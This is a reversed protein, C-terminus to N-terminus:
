SHVIIGTFVTKGNRTCAAPIESIGFHLCKRTANNITMRSFIACLHVSNNKLTTM